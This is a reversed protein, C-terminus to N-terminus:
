RPSQIVIFYTVGFYIIVFFSKNTAARSMDLSLNDDFMGELQVCLIYFCWISSKLNFGRFM